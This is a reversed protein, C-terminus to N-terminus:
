RQLHHLNSIELQYSNSFYLLILYFNLSLNVCFKLKFAKQLLTHHYDKGAGNIILLSELCSFIFLWYLCRLDKQFSFQNQSLNLILLGPSYLQVNDMILWLPVLFSKDCSICVNNIQNSYM